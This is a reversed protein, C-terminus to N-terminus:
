EYLLSFSMKHRASSFCEYRYFTTLHSFQFAERVRSSQLLTSFLSITVYRPSCQGNTCSCYSHFKIENTNSPISHFYTLLAFYHLTFSNNPFVRKRSRRHYFDCFIVKISGFKSKYYSEPTYIFIFFCDTDLYAISLSLSPVLSM